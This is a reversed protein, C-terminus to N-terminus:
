RNFNLFDTKTISQVLKTKISLDIKTVDASNAMSSQDADQSIRYIMILTGSICGFIFASLILVFFLVPHSSPTRRRQYTKPRKSVVPFDDHRAKKPSEISEVEENDDDISTLLLAAKEETGLQHM